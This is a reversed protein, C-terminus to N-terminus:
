FIFRDVDKVLIYAMFAFLIMMGAFHIKGETEDSVAKGTFLRIILFLLRGGDLAPFPLMNVIALNLSLLATLNALNILGLKAQDGIMSVIGVPGVLDDMSGRGTFLQGLYDLMQGGMAFTSSVGTTLAVGPSKRIESTVGIVRRGSDNVTVGSEITMKQGSRLIELSVTAGESGGVASIVDSFSSVKEGDVSLIKDGPLVGAEAAPSGGEVAAVGNTAVGIAMAICTIILIATVLNMFSGAVVVLARAWIPRNNFARPDASDEDEGEMRCFGGIPLARLSYETDGRTFQFLLPGMGLSFENVRVGVSKAVAFHGLEHVLILLCFIIVAFIITTLGM